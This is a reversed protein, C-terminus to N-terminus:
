AQPSSSSVAERLRAVRACWAADGLAPTTMIIADEGTDAYYGRRCGTEAFGYKRYLRCAALNSVRVELTVDRAHCARAHDLLRQLLREGIHRRRECPDVAVMTVHAEDAQIWMGAFGVITEGPGPRDTAGDALCAVFYGAGANPSLEREYATVPWPRTESLAEIRVIAPLDDRTMPRIRIPPDPARGGPTPPDTM